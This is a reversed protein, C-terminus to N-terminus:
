TSFLAQVTIITTISSHRTTKLKMIFVTHNKKYFSWNNKKVIACDSVVKRLIQKRGEDRKEEWNWFTSINFDYPM